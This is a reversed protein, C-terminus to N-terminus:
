PRGESFEPVTESLIGKVATRDEETLHDFDETGPDGDLVQGIRRYVSEKLVPPLATFSDSYILFSLPYRFLRRNLDLDRLSRGLSDRDGPLRDVDAKCRAEEEAEVQRGTCQESLGVDAAAHLVDAGTGVM